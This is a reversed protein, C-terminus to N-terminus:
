GEEERRYGKGWGGEGVREAETCLLERLLDCLKGTEQWQRM